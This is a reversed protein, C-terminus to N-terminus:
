QYEPVNIFERFKKIVKFSELLPRTSIYTRYENPFPKLTDDDKINFHSNNLKETLNISGPHQFKYDIAKTTLIGPDVLRSKNGFSSTKNNRVEIKKIQITNTRKHYSIHWELPENDCSIIDEFM